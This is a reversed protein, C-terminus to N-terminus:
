GRARMLHARAREPCREDHGWPVQRCLAPDLGYKDFVKMNFIPHLRVKRPHVALFYASAGAFGRIICSGFLLSEGEKMDKTQEVDIKHIYMQQKFLVKYVDNCVVHHCAGDFVLWLKNQKPELLRSGDAFKAKNFMNPVPWGLTRPRSRLPSAM